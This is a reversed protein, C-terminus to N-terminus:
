HNDDESITAIARSEQVLADIKLLLEEVPFM